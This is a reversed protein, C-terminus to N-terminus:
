YEKSIATRLDKSLERVMDERRAEAARDLRENNKDMEAFPDGNVNIWYAKRIDNIVACGMDLVFVTRFLNGDFLVRYRDSDYDFEIDFLRDIEKLLPRIVACDAGNKDIGFQYM